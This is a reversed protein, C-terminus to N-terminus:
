QPSAAQGLHGRWSPRSPSWGLERKAKANSAGRQTTMAAVAAGGGFLRAAWLPVRRPPKAGMAEAVAPIWESARAPEDDVVNYVGSAGRELAALTASAADQVHIFSWRGEGSGVIPLRRRRILEGYQGETDLQTGPGYFYGFRLVIGGAELVQRELSLVAEVVGGARSHVSLAAEEDKIWDGVPSYVFAISQAVIRSAAAARAAAILNRTGERRLRNTPALAEAAKRPDLRSPIATLQHIVAEPQSRLVAQTVADADLADGVVAEAGLDRLRAARQESRTLGIVEHGSDLLLPTLASGIAGTAGALFVRM